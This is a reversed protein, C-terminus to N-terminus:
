KIIFNAEKKFLGRVKALLEVSPRKRGKGEFEGFRASNKDKQSYIIEFVYILKSDQYLGFLCIKGKNYRDARSGFCNNMLSGWRQVEQTTKPSRLEFGDVVKEEIFELVPHNDLLNSLADQKVKEKYMKSYVEDLWSLSSIKQYVCLEKIKSFKKFFNVPIDEKSFFNLFRTPSKFYLEYFERVLKAPHRALQTQNLLSVKHSDDFDKFVDLFELYGVNFIGESVILAELTNKLKKTLKLSQYLKVVRQPNDVKFVPTNSFDYDDSSLFMLGNSTLPLINLEKKFVNLTKEKDFPHNKLNFLLHQVLELNTKNNLVVEDDVVEDLFKFKGKEVKIYKPTLVEFNLIDDIPYIEKDADICEALFPFRLDNQSISHIGKHLVM